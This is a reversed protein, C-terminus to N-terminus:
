HKPITTDAGDTVLGPFQKVAVECVAVSHQFRRNGIHKYGKACTHTAFCVVDRLKVERMWKLLALGIGADWDSEFGETIDTGKGFHYAYMLDSVGVTKPHLLLQDRAIRVEAVSTAPAAYGLFTSGSDQVEGGDKMEVTLSATDRIDPLATPLLQHQLEGGLYLKERVMKADTDPNAQKQKKFEDLAFDQTERLELPLQRTIFHNTGKLRKTNNLIAQRQTAIPFKAVIQRSKGKQRSGIRHAVTIVFHNAEHIGLVSCVFHRILGVCDENRAESYNRGHCTFILNDSMSRAKLEIMEKKLQSNSRESRALRAELLATTQHLSSM